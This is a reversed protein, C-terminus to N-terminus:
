GCENQICDILRSRLLETWISNMSYKKKMRMYIKEKNKRTHMRMVKRVCKGMVKREKPTGFKMIINILTSLRIKEPKLLLKHYREFEPHLNNPYTDIDMNMGTYKDELYDVLIQVEYTNNDHTNNVNTSQKLINEVLQLIYM